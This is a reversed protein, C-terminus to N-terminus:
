SSSASRRLSSARVQGCARAATMCGSAPAPAPSRPAGWSAAARRPRPRCAYPRYGHCRVSSNPWRARPPAYSGLKAYEPSPVAKADEPKGPKEDAREHRWLIGIIRVEGAPGEQVTGIQGAPTDVSPFFTIGRLPLRSHFLPRPKRGQRADATTFTAVTWRKGDRWLGLYRYELGADTREAMYNDADIFRAGPLAPIIIRNLDAAEFLSTPQQALLVAEGNQEVRYISGDALRVLDQVAEMATAACPGALTSVVDVELREMAGPAYALTSEVSERNGPVAALNGPGAQCAAVPHEGAPALGSAQQVGECATLSILCALFCNRALTPMPNTM